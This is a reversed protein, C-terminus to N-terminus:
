KDLLQREIFRQRTTVVRVQGFADKQKPNLGANLLIFVAEPYGSSCLYFYNNFFGDCCVVCVVCVVCVCCVCVCVCVRVCVCGDLLLRSGM